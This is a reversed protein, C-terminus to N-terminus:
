EIMCWLLSSNVFRSMKGLTALGDVDVSGQIEGLGCCSDAHGGISTDRSGTHALLERDGVLEGPDLTDGALLPPEGGGAHDERGGRRLLDGRSGGGVGEGPLARRREGGPERGGEGDLEVLLVARTGSERRHLGELDGDLRGRGGGGRRGGSGGCGSRGCGSRGCASRGCAGRGGRVGP